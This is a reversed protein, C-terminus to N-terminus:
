TCAADDDAGVPVILLLARRQQRQNVMLVRYDRLRTIVIKASYIEEDARMEYSLFKM